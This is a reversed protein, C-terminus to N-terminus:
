RRVGLDGALAALNQRITDQPNEPADVRLRPKRPAPKAFAIALDSARPESAHSTLASRRVKLRQKSKQSQASASPQVAIDNAASMVEPLPIPDITKARPAAPPALPKTLREAVAKILADDQPAKAPKKPTRQHPSKYLRRGVMIAAAIGVVYAAPLLSQFLWGPGAALLTSSGLGLGLIWSTASVGAVAFLAQRAPQGLATVKKGAHDALIPMAIESVFFANVTLITVVSIKAWLKPTFASIQFGTRLAVLALGTVWMAGLAYLIVKHRHELGSLMGKSITSRRRRFMFAETEVAVGFGVAVALLHAFRLIDSVILEFM